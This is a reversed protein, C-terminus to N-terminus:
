AGNSKVEEEIVVILAIATLSQISSESTAVTVCTGFGVM